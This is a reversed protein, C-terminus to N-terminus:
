GMAPDSMSEKGTEIHGAYRKEFVNNGEVFVSFDYWCSNPNVDLAITTVPSENVNPINKVIPGFSHYVNDVVKIKYQNKLDPNIFKMLIGGTLEHTKKDANYNSDKFFSISIPPDNKNGKYSRYFGNPGYLRIDYNDNEFETLFTKDFLQDGASVAYNKTKFETGYSYITFPCGASQDKFYLNGAVMSILFFSKDASLDGEADLEYPLACAPRSGKEQQPMYGSKNPNNNIQQIEKGSLKKYNSPVNKFKAKHISEIFPDKEIFPLGTIKEGNYKRFISTLDGCVTRRWQTINTEKINKGFKKNLFKELFQLTSTHDFVQSNVYGGRSWPSAIVLPVRFGLGIPGPIDKEMKVHDLRTDIEESVQGTEPNDHQPAVFPPVHDYYGDNEDYALVFITKKWVEPNKTLIDMAESLYWSGFWPASPHDSFNEPAVLWSVTPLKGNEVDKRFQYLM